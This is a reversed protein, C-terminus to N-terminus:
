NAGETEMSSPTGLAASVYLDGYQRAIAELSFHEQVRRRASEGLETRGRAGMDILRIWAQALASPDEPAVTLGTDAVIQASDGVDTAACPIGCAMAEGLVNPFAEALSSSAYIDMVQMLAPIDDQPGLLILSNGLGLEGILRTLQQNTGCVEAGALVLRLRPHEARAIAAARLLTAHDKTPHFRAINGIVIEDDAIALAARMQARIAGDPKFRDLDFGNPIVQQDATRYGFDRHQELSVHSNYLTVMPSRSLRAGLAIVQRTLWREKDLEHLSHRINWLVPVSVPLAIRAGATAALNGHYMWGQVLDPRVRRLVSALRGIAFPGPIGRRMGLPYVRVRVREIAESLVGRDSLSVVVHEFAGGDMASLLKVLMIQAGGMRLDTIVHAIRIM